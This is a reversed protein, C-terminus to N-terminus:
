DFYTEFDCSMVKNYLLHIQSKLIRNESLEPLDNISFYQFDLIDFGENIITNVPKCLFVLKYVYFSEPPHAHMKTDFVALLKKVTIDLGSEEKIEKVIVEKPSYGIDAWGGPLSWKGDVSEKALLIKNETGSLILGRIDVKATPYDERFPFTQKLHELDQGNVNNMLRFAIEKLETYRERDYEGISYLLGVDAISIM